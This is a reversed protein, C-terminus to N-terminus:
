LKIPTFANYNMQLYLENNYEMNYKIRLNSLVSQDYRNDIFEKDNKGLINPIDTIINKNKCYFLWENLFKENLSTKKFVLTGAEIMPANHYVENDCNMLVFCDKKTYCKNRARDSSGAIMYDNNIMYNKIVNLFNNNKIDDGADMYFLIDNEMMKKMTEIIIYPKWLCYGGGRPMNLIDKNELYFDTAELWERNYNIIINFGINKLQNLLYEERKKYNIDTYFISYLNM